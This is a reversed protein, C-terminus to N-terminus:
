AAETVRANTVGTATGVTVPLDGIHFQHDCAVVVINTATRCVYHWGLARITAQLTTGDFEGDGLVTVDMAPPMLTKLQQILQCYTAQALHGKKGRVVLWAIPIARGRYVVSAMLVVCGRGITSGDVILTLTTHALGMLLARAFPLFLWEPTVADHRM